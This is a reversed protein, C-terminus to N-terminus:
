KKDEPMKKMIGMMKREPIEGKITKSTDTKLTDEVVRLKGVTRLNDIRSSDTNCSEQVSKKYTVGGKLNHDRVPINTSDGNDNNGSSVTSDVLAIAGTLPIDDGGANGSNGCSSLMASACLMLALASVRFPTMVPLLYGPFRFKPEEINIKLPPVEDNEECIQSAKFRGCIKANMNEALYRQIEEESRNSFDIVDKSCVGCFAGQETPTMKDWDEFCPEPIYIKFLNEHAM